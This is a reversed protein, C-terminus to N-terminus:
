DIIQWSELAKENRKIKSHSSCLLEVKEQTYNTKAALYSTTLFTCKKEALGSKLAKFVKSAKYKNVCYKYLAVISMIALGSVLAGVFSNDSLLKWM